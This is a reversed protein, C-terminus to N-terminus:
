ILKCCQLYKKFKVHLIEHLARITNIEYLIGDVYVDCIRTITIANSALSSTSQHKKGSFRIKFPM